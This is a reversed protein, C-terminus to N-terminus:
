GDLRARYLKILGEAAAGAASSGTCAHSLLLLLPLPLLPHASGKCVADREHAKLAEQLRCLWGSSCTQAAVAAAAAAAAAIPRSL